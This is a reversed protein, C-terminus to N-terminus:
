WGIAKKVDGGWFFFVFCVEVFNAGRMLNQALWGLEDGGRLKAAKGGPRKPPGNLSSHYAM